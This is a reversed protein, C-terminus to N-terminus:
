DKDIKSLNINLDGYNANKFYDDKVFLITKHNKFSDVSDVLKKGLGADPLIEATTTYEQDTAVVRLAAGLDRPPINQTRQDVASSVNTPPPQVPQKAQPKAQTQIQNAELNTIISNIEEKAKDRNFGFLHPIFHFLKAIRSPKKTAEDLRNLSNVVEKLKQPDSQEQAKTIVAAWLNNLSVSGECSSNTFKRSGFLSPQVTLERVTTIFDDLSQQKISHTLKDM